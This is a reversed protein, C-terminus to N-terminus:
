RNRSCFTATLMLSPPMGMEYGGRRVKAEAEEDMQELLLVDFPRSRGRVARKCVTPHKKCSLKEQCYRGGYLELGCQTDKDVPPTPPRTYPDNQFHFAPQQDTAMQSLANTNEITTNKTTVHETAVNETDKTETTMKETDRIQPATTNAM